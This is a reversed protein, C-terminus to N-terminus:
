EGYASEILRGIEADDALVLPKNKAWQRAAASFGGPAWLWGRVAQADQMAGYLDRVQPEGVPKRWQKCQVIEVQRQPNLMYVDIGHDGSRGTHKAQYGMQRNVKGAFTELEDDSLYRASERKAIIGAQTNQQWAAMAKNWAQARRRKRYLNLTFMLGLGSLVILTILTVPIFRTQPPINNWWKLLPAYALLGLAVILRVIAEGLDSNAKRRRKSM